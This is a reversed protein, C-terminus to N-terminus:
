RRAGLVTAVKDSIQQVSFPKPIFHMNEIAIERRLQEEAYGSMFLVPLDPALKRIEKAMTPGDMSPMVVDTVVLDFRGGAKFIELGEDGDRATTVTYGGRVLAREA